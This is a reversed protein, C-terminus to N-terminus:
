RSLWGCRRDVSCRDVDGIRYGCRRVVGCWEVIVDGIPGPEWFSGSVSRTKPTFLADCCRSTAHTRSRRPCVHLPDSVNTMLYEYHVHPPQAYSGICGWHTYVCYYPNFYQYLFLIARSLKPKLVPTPAPNVNPEGWVFITNLSVTHM